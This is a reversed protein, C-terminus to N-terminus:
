ITRHSSNLRTSKRDLFLPSIRNSPALCPTGDLLSGYRSIRSHYHGRLRRRAACRVRLLGSDRAFYSDGGWLSGRDLIHFHPIKSIPLADHLSLHSLAP